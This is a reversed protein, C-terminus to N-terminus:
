NFIYRSQWPTIIEDEPGGILIMKELNTLGEKYNPDRKSPVENNIVPLFISYNYYLDQKHPDNWYNGVSIWQGANTYFLKYAEEKM